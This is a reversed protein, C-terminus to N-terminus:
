RVQNGLTIGYIFIVPSQMIMVVGQFVLLQYGARHFTRDLFAGVHEALYKALWHTIFAFVLIALLVGGGPFLSYQECALHACLWRFLIISALVGQLPIMLEDAKGIVPIVPYILSLLFVINILFDLRTKQATIIENFPPASDLGFNLPYVLAIFVLMLMTRLMPMGIKDWYYQLVHHDLREHIKEFVPIVIIIGLCYCFLAFVTQQHSLTQYITM